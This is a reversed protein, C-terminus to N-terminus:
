WGPFTTPRIKNFLRGVVEVNHQAHWWYPVCQPSAATVEGAQDVIGGNVPESGPRLLSQVSHSAVEKSLYTLQSGINQMELVSLREIALRTIYLLFILLVLASIGWHYCLLVKHLYLNACYANAAVTCTIDRLRCKLLYLCLSCCCAHHPLSDTLDSRRILSLLVCIRHLNLFHIDLLGLWVPLAVFPWIM